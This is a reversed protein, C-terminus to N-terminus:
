SDKVLVEGTTQLELISYYNVDSSGMWGRDANYTFALWKEVMHIDHLHVVVTRGVPANRYLNVIANVQNPSLGNMWEPQM